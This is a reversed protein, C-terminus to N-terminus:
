RRRSRPNVISDLASGILVFALGTVAIMLGPPAVWWWMGRSAASASNADHLIKGWTPITPDGLGLFSLGAEGLIAAPVSIAISAFAFPLLQPIVHKFVVKIDSEGMLKAAEVYQFNRIQLAMSRSIKAMGVWAFILLFGTILFISKGVAITLIILLPLVPLAYFLDSIRMLGEDTRRGKYGAIVGYILGILTSAIAVTLGIFLAVPAGWFIGFSLDRRLDDTGMLGYAKGGLVLKSDTVSDSDEFFYFTERFIYTGKLVAQRDADSFIMIQPRRADQKYSFEGLYARMNDTISSETSFVRRSTDDSQSSTSPLASYYIQMELGDPRLVNLQLIPPTGQYNVRYTLIFDSPYSNYTFSVRYTYTVTRIGDSVSESVSAASSPVVIHEASQPGFVGINTWAPAASAPNDLWYSPNNWQKYSELPIGVAAYLSLLLLAMLIVAGSMGAKSRRFASVIEKRSLIDSVSMKFQRSRESDKREM